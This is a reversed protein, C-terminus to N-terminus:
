LLTKAAIYNALVQGPEQTIVEKIKPFAAEQPKGWYFEVSNSLLEQLPCTIESLNLAFRSLYNVMGFGTELEQRNVPPPMDRIASIKAPDPRLGGDSLVQGFYKIESHGVELKDENLWIGKELARDM